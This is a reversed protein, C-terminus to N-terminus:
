GPHTAERPLDWLVHRRAARVAKTSGVHRAVVALALRDVFRAGGPLTRVDFPDLETLAFVHDFTAVDNGSVVQWDGEDFGWVPATCPVELGVRVGLWRAIRDATADDALDIALVDYPPMEPWAGEGDLREIVCSARPQDRSVILRNVRWRENRYVVPLGVPDLGALASLPVVLREAEESRIVHDM